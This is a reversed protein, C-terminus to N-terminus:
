GNNKENKVESFTDRVTKISQTHLRWAGRVRYKSTIEPSALSTIVVGEDGSAHIINSEDLMMGVHSINRSHRSKESGFFLLDGAAHAQGEPISNGLSCEAQLYSDRPINFGFHSYMRQVFGSCDFGFPSTGGWLYPIGVFRSAFLVLSKTSFVPLKNIGRLKRPAIWGPSSDPLCVSRFSRLDPGYNKALVKSGLPLRTLLPSSVSPATYVEAIACVIQLMDSIQISNNSNLFPDDPELPRMHRRIAWGHYGDSTQILALHQCIERIEIKDGCVAQSVLESSSDPLAHLNVVNHTLIGPIPRM